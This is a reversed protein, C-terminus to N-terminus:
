KKEHHDIPKFTKKSMRELIDDFSYPYFNNTDVGVDMSLANPNDVLTGHSHGFLHLSGYHARDWTRLAYHFLVVIKDRIKVVEYDKYWIFRDAVFHTRKDHNGKIFYINQCNIQNLFLKLVCVPAFGLDGLVFLRDNRKARENLRSIIVNNMETVDKFPRNCYKIINAHYAHWDATFYEM